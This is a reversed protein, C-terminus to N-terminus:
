RFIFYLFVFSSTSIRSSVWNRTETKILVTETRTSLAGLRTYSRLMFYFILYIKLFGNLNEKTKTRRGRKVLLAKHSIKFLFLPDFNFWILCCLLILHSQKLNAFRSLKKKGIINFNTPILKIFDANNAVNRRRLWFPLQKQTFEGRFFALFIGHDVRVYKM